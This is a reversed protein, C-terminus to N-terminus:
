VFSILNRLIVSWRKGIAAINFRETFINFANTSIVSMLNADNKLLYLANIISESDAFNCFIIDRKDSFVSLVAVGRATIIPKKMACADYIKTPVVLNAQQTDGFQGLCIDMDAMIEALKEPSVVDYFQINKLKLKKAVDITELKLPGDGIVIFTFTADNRLTLKYAADVIYKMGHLPYFSSVCFIKIAEHQKMKRPYYIENDSGVPIFCLKKFPIHFVEHFYHMHESTDLIVLDSFFCSLFDLCFFYIGYISFPKFKKLDRVLVHFYSIFADFVLPKRFFISFIKAVFVYSQGAASVIICDVDSIVSFLDRSLFYLRLIKNKNSNNCEIVSIGVGRLAKITIRVRAYSPDYSGFYVVKM